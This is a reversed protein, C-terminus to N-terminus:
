GCKTHKLYYENIKKELEDIDSNSDEVYIHQSHEMYFLWGELMYQYSQDADSLTSYKGM